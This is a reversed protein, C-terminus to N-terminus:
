ASCGLASCISQHIDAFVKPKLQAARHVILSANLTFLKDVRVWSAKPLVGLLFDADELPWAPPKQPQSTIQAALFDGRSDPPLVVLVPRRKLASLDPFPFPLLVIDSPQYPM